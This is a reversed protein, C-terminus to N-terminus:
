GATEEPEPPRAYRAVRHQLGLLVRTANIAAKQEDTLRDGNLWRELRARDLKLMREKLGWGELLPLLQETDYDSVEKTARCFGDGSPLAVRATPHDNFYHSLVRKLEGQETQLAEILRTIQDYRQAAHDIREFQARYWAQKQRYLTMLTPQIAALHRADDLARHFTEAEHGLAKCLAELKYSRQEPLVEKAIELTDYIPNSLPARGMLGLARNLFSVDFPANHAVLPEEGIFAMFEPLATELRPADEIMAETIGHIAQSALSIPVGPNVLRQFEAVPRGAHVKVAAMELIGELSPDLGTTELDIVIYTGTPM